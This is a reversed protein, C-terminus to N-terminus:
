YGLDRDEAEFLGETHSRQTCTHCTGVEIIIGVEPKEIIDTVSLFQDCGSCRILFLTAIDGATDLIRAHALADDDEM